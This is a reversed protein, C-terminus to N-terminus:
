HVAYAAELISSGVTKTLAVTTRHKQKIHMHVNIYTLHKHM